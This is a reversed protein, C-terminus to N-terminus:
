SFLLRSLIPTEPWIELRKGYLPLFDAATLAGTDVLHHLRLRYLDIALSRDITQGLKGQHIHAYSGVMELHHDTLQQGTIFPNGWKSPPQGRRARAWTYTTPATRINVATVM